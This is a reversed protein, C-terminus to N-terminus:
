PFGVVPRRELFLPRRSRQRRGSLGNRRASGAAALLANDDPRPDRQLRHPPRGARDRAPHQRRGHASRWPRAPHTDAHRASTRTHRLAVPKRDRGGLALATLLAIAVLLTMKRDPRSSAAPPTEDGEELDLRADGIDRLRLERDKQLCRRLLRTVSPPTERPLAEWDPDRELIKALTATVTDGLFAAKGTLAEYLCCGFAWIDTRRDVTKGKAQEPSMYPATGLIVGTATKASAEGRFAKALGFDLIKVNDEPTIKINPPKLDRHVVGKEHAAGLGEAIQGFLPLVEALPIVGREHREALTEGEVLEMVLFKQGNFEELGHLTAIHPHNLSALLRAEREFRAVRDPDQSFEEPLIKIAVERGLKTDLARYVTGMGGAGIFALIEYTGLRTGASLDM